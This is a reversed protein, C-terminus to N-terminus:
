AKFYCICDYKQKAGQNVGVRDPRKHVSSSYRSSRKPSDIGRSSVMSDQHYGTPQRLHVKDRVEVFILLHIVKYFTMEKERERLNM